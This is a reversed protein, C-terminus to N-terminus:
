YVLTRRHQVKIKERAVELQVKRTSPPSGPHVYFGITYSNSLTTMLENMFESPFVYFSSLYFKGSTESVLEKFYRPSFNETASLGSTAERPGFSVVYLDIDSIRFMERYEDLNRFSEHDVTGTILLLVKRKEPRVKLIDVGRGLFRGVPINERDVGEPRPKMDHISQILEWDQDSFEHVTELEQYFQGIWVQGLEAIASIMEDALYYRVVDVINVQGLEPRSVSYRATRPSNEILITFATDVNRYGFYRVDIPEQDVYLRVEQQKLDRVHVGNKQKVSFNLFRAQQDASEAQLAPCLLSLLLLVEQFRRM